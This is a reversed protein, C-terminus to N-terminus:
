FGFDLGAGLGVYTGKDTGPANDELIDIYDYKYGFNFNASFRKDLFVRLGLGIGFSYNKKYIENSYSIGSNLEDDDSYYAGILGYVCTSSTSIFDRKLEIGFDFLVDKTESTIILKQMDQWRISQRIHVLGTFMLEYNGMFRRAYSLGFGSINSYRVGVLNDYLNVINERKQFVDEGEDKAFLDDAYVFAFSVPLFLLVFILKKM